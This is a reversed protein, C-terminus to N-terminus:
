AQAARLVFSLPEIGFLETLVRNTTAFVDAECSKKPCAITQGKSSFTDQRSGEVFIVEQTGKQYILGEDEELLLRTQWQNIQAIPMVLAAADLNELSFCRGDPLQLTFTNLEYPLCANCGGETIVQSTLIEVNM